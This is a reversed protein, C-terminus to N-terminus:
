YLQLYEGCTYIVYKNHILFLNFLREFLYGCIRSQYAIPSLEPHYPACLQIEYFSQDKMKTIDLAHQYLVNKDMFNNRKEFEFLITFIFNCIENYKKRTTIFSNSYIITNSNAMIDFSNEYEPFLEKIIEKCQLLDEKDHAWDYQELITRDLTRPSATIIDYVSLIVPILTPNISLLRRYQMQGIYPTNTNKWIWYIGTTELFLDNKESINDGTNDKLECVDNSTLEAGCQLLKYDSLSFNYNLKKHTLIYIDLNEM